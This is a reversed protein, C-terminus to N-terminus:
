PLVVRAVYPALQDRNLFKDKAIVASLEVLVQRNATLFTRVEQTCESKLANLVLRNHEIQADGAPETYFVEGFGSSLYATAATLWKANDTQAGDAREGLAVYEAEAGAVLMQMSWRLYGETLVDPAPQSHEVQGRYLDYGSIEARVSVTFAEPLEGRTMFMLVHGAEHIATRQIDEPKRPMPRPRAVAYGAVEMSGRSVAYSRSPSLAFAVRLLVFAAVVALSADPNEKAIRLGDALEPGFSRVVFLVLSLLIFREVLSVAGSVTAPALFALSIARAVIWLLGLILTANYVAQAVKPLTEVPPASGAWLPIAILGFVLAPYEAVFRLLGACLAKASVAPVRDLARLLIGPLLRKDILYRALASASIFTVLNVAIGLASLHWRLLWLLLLNFALGAAASIALHKMLQKGM